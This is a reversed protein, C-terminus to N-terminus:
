SVHISSTTSTFIVRAKNMGGFSAIMVQRHSVITVIEMFSEPSKKIGFVIACFILKVALMEYRVPDSDGKLGKCDHVSTTVLANHM